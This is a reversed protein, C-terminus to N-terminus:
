MIGGGQYICPGGGAELKGGGVCKGPCGGVEIGAAVTGAAIGGGAGIPVIAM